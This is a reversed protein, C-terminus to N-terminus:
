RNKITVSAQPAKVRRGRRAVGFNYDPGAVLTMVAKERGKTKATIVSLTVAGSSQGAPIVIHFPDGNVVYDSGMVANGSMAYAITLPQTTPAPITATFTAAGGKQINAPAVSLSVTVPIPTATPSPTPTATPTPTPTPSPTPTPTAAPALPAFGAFVSEPSLFRDRKADFFGFDELNTDTTILWGDRQAIIIRGTEDIDIDSLNTFGSAVGKEVADGAPNLRYVAGYRTALFVRGLSDAAIGQIDDHEDVDNPINIQRLFAMNVSGYVRITRDGSLGYVNGDLGVNLDRFDYGTAFRTSTGQVDFRIIGNTVGQYSSLMDPAFIFNRQVALAGFTFGNGINWDPFTWNQVAAGPWYRTLFPHETGNFTAIAGDYDVVVDRLVEYGPYAQAFNYTFPITRVFSGDPRFENVANNQPSNYTLGGFSVLIDHAPTPSPTPTPTAPPTPSPDPPAPVSRAFSVFLSWKYVNPDDVALFASFTSLDTDGLIVYGSEHGVLLRGNEDVDIDGLGSDALQVAGDPSGDKTLRYVWGGATFFVRGNKDVAISTAYPVGAPFAIRGEKQLSVPDFIDIADGLAYLQGSPSVNVDRFDSGPAFRVFTGNTSDFRVLGNATAYSTGQDTVFVFNGYTAIGGATWDIAASWGLFPKHSFTGTSPLYRTLYPNDTGNFAFISGYQDVAVDRLSNSPAYPRNDYNFYITQVLTGDPKYEAVYNQHAPPAVDGIPEGAVVLIDNPQLPAGEMIGVAYLIALIPFVTKMSFSPRNHGFDNAQAFREGVFRAFIGLPISTGAIM